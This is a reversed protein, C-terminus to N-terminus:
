RYDKRSPAARAKADVLDFCFANRLDAKDKSATIDDEEFCTWTTVLMVDGPLPGRWTHIGWFQRKNIVTM